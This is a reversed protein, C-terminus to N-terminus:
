RLDAEDQAQGGLLTLLVGCRMMPLRYMDVMLHSPHQSYSRPM